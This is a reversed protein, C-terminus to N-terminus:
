HASMRLHSLLVEITTPYFYFFVDLIQQTHGALDPQDFRLADGATFAFGLTNNVVALLIGFLSSMMFTSCIEIKNFVFRATQGFYTSNQSFSSDIDSRQRKGVCRIEADESENDLVTLLSKFHEFLPM